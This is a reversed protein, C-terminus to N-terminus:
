VACVKCSEEEPYMDRFKYFAGLLNANNFYKCPQIDPMPVVGDFLRNIKVEEERILRIYDDNVSIGGGLAIIEPDCLSQLNHILLALDRAAKRVAREAKAEGKRLKELIEECRLNQEGYGAVIQAPVGRCGWMNTEINWSKDRIGDDQYIAYSLEGAFLNKGRLIKRDIIITGGIATGITLVIGNHVKALVGSHLEALAAAKADNEISVPLNDCVESLKRVMNIDRIYDLSGGTFMVGHETDIIGPSSIAIGTVNQYLEYITRIKQLFSFINDRPTAISGVKEIKVQDDIMTHKLFTGGVDICLIGM